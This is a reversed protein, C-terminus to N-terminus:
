ALGAISFLIGCFLAAYSLSGRYPDIEVVSHVHVVLFRRGKIIGMWSISDYTGILKYATQCLRLEYCQAM